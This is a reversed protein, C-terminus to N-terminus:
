KGSEAQLNCVGFLVLGFYLTMFQVTFFLIAGEGKLATCLLRKTYSQDRIPMNYGELEVM